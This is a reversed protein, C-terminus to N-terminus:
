RNYIYCLHVTRSSPVESVQQGGGITRDGRHSSLLCVEGEDGQIMLCRLLLWDAEERTEHGQVYQRTVGLGGEGLGFGDEQLRDVVHGKKQYGVRDYCGGDCGRFRTNCGRHGHKRAYGCELAGARDCTWRASHLCV